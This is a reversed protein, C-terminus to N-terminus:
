VELYNLSKPSKERGGVGGRCDTSRLRTVFQSAPDSGCPLRARVAAASTRWRRTCDPRTTGSCGLLNPAIPLDHNSHTTVKFRRRGKAQIGPWQILKQVWETGVRIGRALLETWTRPWGCDGHIAKLHVRLAEDSLHRRRAMPAARVFHKHYGDVRAELARCQVSISWMRRHRNIFASNLEASERLAGNRKKALIHREMEVRALEARLRSIEMREASVVKSEAGKLKGAREAKVRNFLTQEVGDLSRAVAAILRSISSFNARL